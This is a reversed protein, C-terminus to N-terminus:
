NENLIAYGFGTKGFYNGCYLMIIQDDLKFVYPYCLMQSDWSSNNAVQIGAKTDDRHWYQLDSSTAYGIRYGNSANRFNEAPRFCFWMHYKNNHFIVTASNQCENKSHAPILCQTDFTWDILNSSEASKIQYVAEYKDKYKTWPLGSSYFMKFKNKIPYIFVGNLFYPNYSSVPILPKEDLKKFSFGFDESKALGIQTTYPYEITRKWGQYFFYTSNQHSLLMTPHIGHESFSDPRGLKLSPSKHIYLIHKLNNRSVDIFSTESIPARNDQYHRTAYFIRIKDKLILPRPIQAYEKAWFLNNEPKFIHGSKIWHM